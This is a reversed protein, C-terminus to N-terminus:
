IGFTTRDSNASAASLAANTGTNVSISSCPRLFSANRSADVSNKRISATSPAIVTSKMSVAPSIIGTNTPALSCASSARVTPRERTSNGTTRIRPM